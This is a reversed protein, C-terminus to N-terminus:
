SSSEKKQLEDQTRRKLDEIVKKQIIQPRLFFIYVMLSLLLIIGVSILTIMVIKKINRSTKELVKEFGDYDIDVEASYVVKGDRDVLFLTPTKAVGYPDGAVFFKEQYLEDIPVTLSTKGDKLFAQIANKFDIGDLNIAFGKVGRSKYKDFIRSIKPMSEKCYPCFASWFYLITVDKRLYKESDCVKGGLDKLMFRPASSGIPLITEYLDTVETVDKVINNKDPKIEGRCKVLPFSLSLAVFVFMGFLYRIKTHLSMEVKERQNM